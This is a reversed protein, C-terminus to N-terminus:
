QEGEAPATTDIECCSESTAETEEQNAGTVASNQIEEENTNCVDHIDVLRLPKAKVNGFITSVMIVAM